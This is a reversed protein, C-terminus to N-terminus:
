PLERALVRPFVRDLLRLAAAQVTLEAFLSNGVLEIPLMPKALNASYEGQALWGAQFQLRGWGRGCM